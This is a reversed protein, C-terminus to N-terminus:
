VIPAVRCVVDFANVSLEYLQSQLFSPYANGRKVQVSTAERIHLLPHSSFTRNKCLQEFSM